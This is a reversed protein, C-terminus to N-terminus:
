AASRWLRRVRLFVWYFAEGFALFPQRDLLRAAWALRPSGRWIALFAKPGSVLVGDARRVHFRKLLTDASVGERDLQERDPAEGDAGTLDSWRIQEGLSKKYLSIEARCVPCAGDYFVETARAPDASPSQAATDLSKVAM